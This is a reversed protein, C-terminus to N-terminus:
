SCNNNALTYIQMPCGGTTARQDMLAESPPRPRRQRCLQQLCKSTATRISKHLVIYFFSNLFGNCFYIWVLTYAVPRSVIIKGVVSIFGVVIIPLYTVFFFTSVILINRASHMSRGIIAHPLSQASPFSQLGSTEAAIRRTQEFVIVFIRVHAAIILGFSPVYILASAVYYYTSGLLSYSVYTKMSYNATPAILIPFSIVFSVAWLTIVSTYLRCSTLWTVYNFPKVIILYKVTCIAVLSFLSATTFFSVSFSQTKALAQCIWLNEPPSCCGLAFMLSLSVVFMGLGIDAVSMSMVFPTVDDERLRRSTILTVLLLVNWVFINGLVFTMSCKVLVDSM